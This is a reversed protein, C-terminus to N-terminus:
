ALKVSKFKGCNMNAIGGNKINVKFEINGTVKNSLATKLDARIINLYKELLENDTM